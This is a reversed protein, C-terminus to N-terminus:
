THAAAQVPRLTRADDSDDNNDAIYTSGQEEVLAGHRTLLAPNAWGAALYHSSAVGTGGMASNRAEYYQAHVVSALLLSAAPIAISRAIM